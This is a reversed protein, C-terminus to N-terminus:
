IWRLSSYSWGMFLSPVDQSVSLPQLSIMVLNTVIKGPLYYKQLLISPRQTKHPPHVQIPQFPIVNWEDPTGVKKLIHAM